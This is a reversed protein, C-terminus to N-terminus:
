FPVEEESPDGGLGFPDPDGSEQEPLAFGEEADGFAAAHNPPTYPQYTIVRVAELQLSIGKGGEPSDWSYYTFAVKGTSGNGILMDVPWPQGKADQVIPPPLPTGRKTAVNRSFSFKWLDTEDGKEDLYTKVPMGNQGPRAAAGHEAVFLQKLKKVFAQAEADGKPMLLEISYAEKESAKGANQIGPTLIKAWMLDGLPTVMTERAMNHQM